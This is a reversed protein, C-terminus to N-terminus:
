WLTFSRYEKPEDLFIITVIPLHLTYIYITVHYLGKKKTTTFSRKQGGFINHDGQRPGSMNRVEAPVNWEAPFKM